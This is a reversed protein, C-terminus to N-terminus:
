SLAMMLIANISYCWYHMLLIAKVTYCECDVLSLGAGVRYCESFGM